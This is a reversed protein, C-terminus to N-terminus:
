FGFVFGSQIGLFQYGSAKVPNELNTFSLSHIRPRRDTGGSWVIWDTASPYALLNLLVRDQIYM